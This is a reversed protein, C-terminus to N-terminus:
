EYRVGFGIGKLKEGVQECGKDLILTTNQFEKRVPYEKRLKDFFEGRKDEATEIIMRTRGDDDTIKYIQEVVGLLTDTNDNASGLNIQVVPPAPLFDAIAFESKLNFHRCAANYIMIMGAMKGDYSYGAIHPTAIDVM